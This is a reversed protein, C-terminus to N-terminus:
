GNDRLYFKRRFLVRRLKTCYCLHRVRSRIPPVLETVRTGGILFPFANRADLPPEYDNSDIASTHSSLKVLTIEHHGRPVRRGFSARLLFESNISPRFALYYTLSFM